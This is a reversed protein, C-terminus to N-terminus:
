KTIRLGAGWDWGWNQLLGEVAAKEQERVKYGTIMFIEQLRGRGWEIIGAGIRAPMGQSDEQLAQRLLLYVLSPHLWAESGWAEEEGGLWDEFSM